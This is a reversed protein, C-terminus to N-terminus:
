DNNMDNLIKLMVIFLLYVSFLCQVSTFIILEYRNKVSSGKINLNHVRYDILNISEEPKMIGARFDDFIAVVCPCEVSIGSYFGNKDYKMSGWKM